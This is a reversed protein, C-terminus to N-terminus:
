KLEKRIAELSDLGETLRTSQPDTLIDSIWHAEKALFTLLLMADSPKRCGLLVGHGYSLVLELCELLTDADTPSEALGSTINELCRQGWKTKEPGYRRIILLAEQACIVLWTYISAVRVKQYLEEKNHIILYEM